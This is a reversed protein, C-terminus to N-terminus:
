VDVSISGDGSMLEPSHDLASSIKHALLFQVLDNAFHVSISISSNRKSLERIIDPGFAWNSSSFLLVM